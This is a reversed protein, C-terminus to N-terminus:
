GHASDGRCSCASGLHQADALHRPRLRPRVFDQDPHARRREILGIQELAVAFKGRRGAFGFDEADLDGAVDGGAARVNLERDAGGHAAEHAAARVGIVAQEVGVHGDGDRGAKRVGLHGGHRRHEEGGVRRHELESLEGGSLRHEDV